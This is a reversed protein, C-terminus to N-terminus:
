SACHKSTPTNPRHPVFIQSMWAKNLSYICGLSQSTRMTEPRPGTSHSCSLFLNRLVIPATTLLLTISVTIATLVCGEPGQTCSAYHISPRLQRARFDMMMDTRLDCTGQAAGLWHRLASFISLCAWKRSVCSEGSLHSGRPKASHSPM